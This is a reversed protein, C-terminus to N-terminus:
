RPQRVMCREVIDFAPSSKKEIVEFGYHEYIQQLRDAYCDLYCAIGREDAFALIPKMLRGFVGSGRRSADVGISNFYLFDEDPAASNFMWDSTFVAEMEELRSTLIRQEDQTLIKALARETYADIDNWHDEGLESRLFLNTAAADDSLALCCGFPAMAEYDAKILAQTIVLKREKSAGLEDLAELFSVHWMEELFSTGVMRALTELTETQEPQITILGPVHM